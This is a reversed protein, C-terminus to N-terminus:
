SSTVRSSLGLADALQLAEEHLRSYHQSRLFSQRREERKEEGDKGKVARRARVYADSAISYMEVAERRVDQLFEEDRGGPRDAQAIARMAGDKVHEPSLDGTGVPGQVGRRKREEIASILFLADAERRRGFWQRPEVNADAHREPGRVPESPGAAGVLKLSGSAARRRRDAARQENVLERGRAQATPTLPMIGSLRMMHEASANGSKALEDRIRAILPSHYARLVLWHERPVQGIIEEMGRFWKAADMQRVTVREHDVVSCTGGRPAIAIAKLGAVDADSTALYRQINVTDRTSLGCRTGSPDSVAAVM